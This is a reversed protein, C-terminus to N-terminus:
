SKAQGVPWFRLAAWSVSRVVSSVLTPTSTLGQQSLKSATRAINLPGTVLKHPWPVGQQSKAYILTKYVLRWEESNEVAHPMPKIERISEPINFSAKGFLSHTVALIASLDSNGQVVIDSLDHKHYHDVLKNLQCFLEPSPAKAQCHLQYFCKDSPGDLIYKRVIIRPEGERAKEPYINEYIVSKDDWAPVITHEQDSPSEKALVVAGRTIEWGKQGPDGFSVLVHVNDSVITKLLETRELEKTPHQRLQYWNEGLYLRSSRPKRNELAWKLIAQLDEPSPECLDKLDCDPYTCPDPEEAQSEAVPVEAPVATTQSLAANGQPAVAAPPLAIPVAPTSKAPPLIVPPPEECPNELEKHVTARRYNGLWDQQRVNLESGRSFFFFAGALSCFIGLAQCGVRKATEWLSSFGPISDYVGKTFDSLTLVRVIGALLKLPLCIVIKGLAALIERVLALHGTGLAVVNLGFQVPKQIVIKGLLSYSTHNVENMADIVQSHWNIPDMGSVLHAAIKNISM